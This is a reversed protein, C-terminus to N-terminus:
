CRWRAGSYSKLEAGHLGFTGGTLILAERATKMLDHSSPIRFVCSLLLLAQLGEGTRVRGFRALM